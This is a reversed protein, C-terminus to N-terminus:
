SQRRAALHDFRRCFGCFIPKRPSIRTALVSLMRDGIATNRMELSYIVALKLPLNIIRTILQGTSCDVSAHVRPNCEDIHFVQLNAAGTHTTIHLHVDSTFGHSGAIAMTQVTLTGM